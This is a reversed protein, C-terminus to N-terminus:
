SWITYDTNFDTVLEIFGVHPCLQLTHDGIFFCVHQDAVFDYRHGVALVQGNALQIRLYSAELNIILMNLQATVIGNMSCIGLGFM